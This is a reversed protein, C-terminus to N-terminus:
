YKGRMNAGYADIRYSQLLPGLMTSAKAYGNLVNADFVAVHHLTLSDAHLSPMVLIPLKSLMLHSNLEGNQRQSASCLGFLTAWHSRGPRPLSTTLVHRPATLDFHVPLRVLM